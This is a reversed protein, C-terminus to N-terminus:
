LYQFQQDTPTVLLSWTFWSRLLTRVATILHILRSKVDDEPTQEYGNYTQQVAQSSSWGVPLGHFLLSPFTIVLTLMRFHSLSRQLWTYASRALFREENLIAVANILLLFVYALEWVQSFLGMEITRNLDPRLHQVRESKGDGDYACWLLAYTTGQKKM